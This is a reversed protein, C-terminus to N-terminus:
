PDGLAPDFLTQSLDATFAYDPVFPSPYPKKKM